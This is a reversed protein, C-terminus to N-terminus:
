IKGKDPNVARIEKGVRRGDCDFTYCYVEGFGIELESIKEDSINELHKVLARISNGHAVVLVNHGVILQSRICQEYYPVVRDHVDKLNEGGEVVADWGRRIKQFEEEGVAEKVQWKNKGTHVGYDRENLAAHAEAQLDDRGLVKRIEEFTQHSRKLKSVHAKEIRIDRITKGMQRAEKRGESALDVDTIGTWLGLKNWESKGHRVLVLYAMPDPFATTMVDM